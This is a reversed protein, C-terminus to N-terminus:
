PRAVVVPHQEETGQPLNRIVLVERSVHYETTRDGVPNTAKFGTGEAEVTGKIGEALLISTDSTAAELPGRMLHGQYILREDTNKCIWVESDVAGDKHTRIYLVVQLDANLGGSRVAQVTVAPCAAAPDPAATTTTRTAGPRTRTTTTAAPRSATTTRAPTTTPAAEAGGPSGGVIQRTVLYGFTGATGALVVLLAVLAPGVRHGPSAPEYV